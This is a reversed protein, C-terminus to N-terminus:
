LEINAKKKAAAEERLKRKKRIRPERIKFFYEPPITAKPTSKLFIMFVVGAVLFIYGILGFELLLQGQNMEVM